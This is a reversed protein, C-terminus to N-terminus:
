RVFTEGRLDVRAGQAVQLVREVPVADEFVYAEGGEELRVVAPTPAVNMVDVVRVFEEGCVVLGTVEAHGQLGCHVELLIEAAVDDALGFDADHGVVWAARVLM